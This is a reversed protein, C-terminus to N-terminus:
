FYCGIDTFYVLSTFPLVGPMSPRKKKKKNETHVQETTGGNEDDTDTIIGKKKTTSKIGLSKEVQPDTNVFILEINVKSNTVWAVCDKTWRGSLPEGILTDSDNPTTEFPSVARDSAYINDNDNDPSACASDSRTQM